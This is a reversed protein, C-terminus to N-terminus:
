LNKQLIIHEFEEPPLPRSFYYGQVMACGLDKLLIMQKETEVGEAVVPVKLSGAIDLILEVLQLDKRSHEINRVFEKDMKLIDIPMSSIMNLSSYGSGFDDMEIEFGKDRLRRIVRIVQVADEVYASETVELKFSSYDLNNKELLEDLTPELAPDFVDVRSLNVSVPVTVGFKDRWAAIQRATEEWVYKDVIGIQGNREFLPIFNDPPIMGLEPHRWRILAEASNLKPPDSQIAFKPQYFVVFEHNEIARRLDNLLRQDRIERERMEDDYIMLRKKYSGRALKCATRARDFLLMPEIGEQWPMVGMRLRISAKSSYENLRLQFRAFVDQYNEQPACYVDFRDAEFRGAIGETEKLFAIIESGMLKLVGDGFDRGNLANVSHFQEIDLVIADYPKEPHELFMRNAYEFFFNRNYLKTLPDLETASILKQRENADREARLRQMLQSVILGFVVTIAIIVVAWNDRIFDSFTIKREAYSYNVLALDIPAEPVLNVTKNLISYLLKDSRNVAFSFVMNKGTTITALKYKQIQNNMRLIRYNSILLCDAEGSDVARICENFDDFYIVKWYPFYDKLFVEYNNNGRNVGVTLEAAPDLGPQDSPRIVAYMETEMSPITMMINMEEGDYASLNVPFVCDIERNRLADLAENTAAYPIAEFEIKGNKLSESALELYDKLAGTLKGTSQAKASIPLYNDRYGVRIPGHNSLWEEELPSLYAETRTIRLYKDSLQMSYYRDEDHIRNLAFDLQSLLDPRNKNVAFYFDSSGVRVVPICNDQEGYGEISVFADIAGENLLRLSENGFTTLEIIEADVNHIEAWERYLDEQISGKNIGIKKGNLTSYDQPIVEKNGGSIFIYYSESGMPLSPFLMTKSREATFSVDCLMDIEGTQLMQLLDPWSATVYEYTWGTYAAIKQEYEYAYGTRRGFKDLTNFPSEDWGVRVVNPAADQACVSAAAALAAMLCFLLLFWVPSETRLRAGTKRM